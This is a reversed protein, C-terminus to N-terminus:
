LWGVLVEHGGDSACARVCAGVVTWQEAVQGWSGRKNQKLVQNATRQLGTKSKQFRFPLPSISKLPFLGPPPPYMVEPYPIQNM